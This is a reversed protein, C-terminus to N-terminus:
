LIRTPALFVHFIDSGHFANDIVKYFYQELTSPRHIYQLNGVCVRDGLCIVYSTEILIDKSRSCAYIFLSAILM